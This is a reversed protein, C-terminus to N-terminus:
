MNQLFQLTNIVVKPQPKYNRFIRLKCVMTENFIVNNRKLCICIFSVIIIYILSVKLRTYKKKQQRKKNTGRKTIM